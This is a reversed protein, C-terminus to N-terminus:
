PKGVTKLFKLIGEKFVVIKLVPPPARSTISVESKSSGALVRLLFPCRPQTKRQPWNRM